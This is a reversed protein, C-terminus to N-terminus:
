AGVYQLLHYLSGAPLRRPPLRATPSGPSYRVPASALYIGVVRWVSELLREDRWIVFQTGVGVERTTARTRRGPLGGASVPDHPMGYQAMTVDLTADVLSGAGHEDLRLLENLAQERVKLRFGPKGTNHLLEVVSMYYSLRSNCARNHSDSFLPPSSPGLYARSSKRSGWLSEHTTDRSSTLVREHIMGRQCSDGSRSM